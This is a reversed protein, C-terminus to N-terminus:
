FDNEAFIEHFMRNLDEHRIPVPNSTLDGAVGDVLNPIDQETIFRKLGLVLGLSGIFDALIQSCMLAVKEVPQDALDPRLITAIEFFKHPAGSYCSRMWYPYFLAVSQGHAIEPRLACLSKDARHPFCTGVCALNIGMTTSAYALRERAEAHQPQELVLPLDSGVIRMAHLALNDNIPSSKPSVYSEIAHALTDFGTQATVIRPVSLTLQPDVLAYRPFLYDSRIGDKFCRDPDTVIASRNLESGTGATTPICVLPLADREVHTRQYLFDATPRESPAVGAIAKACDLVSGGGLAVVVDARHDRAEAAGQDVDDLTPSPRFGRYQKVALGHRQFDDMLQETFGLRDMASRSTVLLVRQGLSATVEGARQFSGAGFYLRTPVYYNFHM